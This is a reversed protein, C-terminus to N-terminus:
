DLSGGTGERVGAAADPLGRLLLSGRGYASAPATLPRAPAPGAGGGAAPHVPQCRVPLRRQGGGRALLEPAPGRRLLAQPQGPERVWSIVILSELTSNKLSQDQSISQNPHIRSDRTQRPM